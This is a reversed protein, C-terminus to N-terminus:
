RREGYLMTRNFPQIIESEFFLDNLSDLENNERKQHVTTEQQNQKKFQAIIAKLQEIQKPKLGDLDITNVVNNNM